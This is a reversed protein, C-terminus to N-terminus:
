QKRLVIRHALVIADDVPSALVLSRGQGGSAEGVQGGRTQASRLLTDLRRRADTAAMDSDLETLPKPSVLVIIEENGPEADLRFWEDKTDAKPLSYDAFARVKQGRAETNLRVMEGNRRRNFVYLYGDLNTTVRLRFRDGPRFTHRDTVELLDCDTPKQITYLIGLAPVPVQIARGTPPRLPDEIKNLQQLLRAQYPDGLLKDAITFLTEGDRVTYSIKRTHAADLPQYFEEVSQAGAAAALIATLIVTKM